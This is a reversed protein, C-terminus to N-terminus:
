KNKSAVIPFYLRGSALEYVAEPRNQFISSGNLAQELSEHILTHMYRVSRPSLTGERGNQKPEALKRNYFKQIQNPQLDKICIGGLGPKIHNNIWRKYSDFTTPRVQPKVYENLWVDLWEALTMKSPEIFTGNKVDHLANALKEQVEKRTKGYYTVRKPKGTEYDRGVVAQALWKGDAKQFISGENHGRNAM